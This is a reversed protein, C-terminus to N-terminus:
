GELPVGDYIETLPLRVGVAALDVTSDLSRLVVPFPWAGDEARSWVTVHVSLPEIVVYHRLTALQRYEDAKRVFDASRTSRSLVEFFVTPERSETAGREPRGCDITVDPRRHQGRAHAGGHRRDIPPVTQWSSQL